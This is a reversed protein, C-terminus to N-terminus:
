DYEKASVLGDENFYIVADTMFWKNYNWTMRGNGRDHENYPEGIATRVDSMSMGNKIPNLLQESWRMSYAAFAIYGIAVVILAICTRSLLKMNRVYLGDM